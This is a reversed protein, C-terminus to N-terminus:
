KLVNDDRPVGSEMYLKEVGTDTAVGDIASTGAICRQTEASINKRIARGNYSHHEAHIITVVACPVLCITGCEM